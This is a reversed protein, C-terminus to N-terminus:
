FFPWIDYGQTGNPSAPPKRAVSGGPRLLAFALVLATVALILVM